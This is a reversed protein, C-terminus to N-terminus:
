EHFSKNATAWQALRWLLLFQVFSNEMYRSNQLTNPPMPSLLWQISLFQFIKLHQDGTPNIFFFILESLMSDIAETYQLHQLSGWELMHVNSAENVQLDSLWQYWCIQRKWKLYSRRISIYKMVLFINCCTVKPESGIVRAVIRCTEPKIRMVTASSSCANADVPFDAYSCLVPSVNSFYFFNLDSNVSLSSSHGTRFYFKM